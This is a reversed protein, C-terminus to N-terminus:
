RTSPNASVSSRYKNQMINSESKYRGFSTKPRRRTELDLDDSDNEDRPSISPSYHNHNHTTWIEHRNLAETVDNHHQEVFNKRFSEYLHNDFSELLPRRPSAYNTAASSPTSANHTNFPTLPTMIRHPSPSRLLPAPLLPPVPEGFLSAETEYYSTSQQSISPTSVSYYYDYRSRISNPDNGFM